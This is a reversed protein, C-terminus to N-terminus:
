RVEIYEMRTLKKVLLFVDVYIIGSIKDKWVILDDIDRTGKNYVFRTTESTLNLKKLTNFIKSNSNM